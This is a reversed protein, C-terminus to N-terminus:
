EGNEVGRGNLAYSLVETQTLADDNELIGAVEGEKMVLIRNSMRMVEVLDSSIMIISAGDKVLDLMINYIESRAGIDIGRTPEDFIYVDANNAVWKAIVVKQQNGGSLRRAEQKSSNAKVKLLKMYKRSYDPIARTNIIFKGFQDLNPLIINRELSHMLVLGEDKRDESLYVVGKNISDTISYNKIEESGNKCTVTGKSRKYAGVICKAIETRGSGMLGSMGLIEGKYLEFNINKLLDRYYLGKVELATESKNIYPNKMKEFSVKKNVMLETLEDVNTDKLEVTDVYSGDRMVTCRDGIEFLEEMRHSIYIIGYGKSKLERVIDFLKKTEKETIAATPEDLVLIKLDTSLAKSIEVMQKQAVSLEKVKTRPDIELGVLELMKKTESFMKAKDVFIGKSFEKNLFINDMISAYPNLNFEQYIVSIGKDIAEKPSNINLEEGFLKVEGGERKYAGSLIKMLTSKGAGNEGLLVHVEGAKVELHVDQLVSVGFFSKSINKMELALQEM